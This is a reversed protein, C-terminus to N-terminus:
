SVAEECTRCIEYEIQTESDERTVAEEQPIRNGCFSCRTMQEPELITQEM